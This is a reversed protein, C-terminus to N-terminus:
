NGKRGEWKIEDIGLDLAIQRSLVFLYDSLRNLYQIIIEDVKEESHLSVVRREARRCICRALHCYSVHTHGGPLIFHRLPPLIENMKDMENELLEIDSYLIDPTIM